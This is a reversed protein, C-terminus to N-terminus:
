VRVETTGAAVEELFAAGEVKQYHNPSTGKMKNMVQRKLEVLQEARSGSKVKALQEERWAEMREASEGTQVVGDVVDVVDEEVPDAVGAVGRTFKNKLTPHEVMGMAKRREMVKQELSPEMAFGQSRSKWGVAKFDAIDLFPEESDARPATNRVIGMPEHKVLQPWEAAYEADLTNAWRVTVGEGGLSFVPPIHRKPTDGSRVITKSATLPARVLDLPFSPLFQVWPIKAEPAEEVAEEAPVAAEETSTTTAPAAAQPDYKVAEKAKEAEMRAKERELRAQEKAEARQREAHEAEKKAWPVWEAAFQMKGLKLQAADIKGNLKRWRRDEKRADRMEKWERIQGKLEKKAAGNDKEWMEALEEMEKIEAKRAKNRMELQKAVREEQKLLVAALDAISNTKQDMVMKVRMKWKKRAILDHANEKKSGGRGDLIKELKKIQAETYPVSM